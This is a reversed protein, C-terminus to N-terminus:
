DGGEQCGGLERCENFLAIGAAEHIAGNLGGGVLFAEALEVGESLLIEDVEKGGLLTRHASNVIASVNMDLVSGRVFAVHSKAKFDAIKDRIGENILIKNSYPNIVFGLCDPWKDLSKLLVDFSQNISSYADGMSLQEESTFLPILYHGHEDAPIHKFSIGVDERLSFTMGESLDAANGNLKETIVQAIRMEAKELYRPSLDIGIYERGLRKAVAGTTGSGFFPDLVTDGPRSGALICPEILREPFMAFHEDMRFTNTSVEWVDRKRKYQRPEETVADTKRDIGQSMKTESYKAKGSRGRTYRAATVEKIPEQIAKYDYYYKPSKALLFIHEYCKSPRDKVSEPLCNIKHWIIDSRLYYGFDRLAFALMWPIGIMDKPKIKEWRKPMQFIDNGKGYIPRLKENEEETLGVGKGSGAYSDSINLWLTGDDMLVRYVEAFVEVLRAIYEQPTQEIGIQGDTGYDRLGYYPPSTVCMRVSDPPLSKLGAAADACILKSM